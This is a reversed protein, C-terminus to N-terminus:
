DKDSVSINGLPEDNSDLDVHGYKNEMQVPGLEYGFIRLVDNVKDLRVSSKGNELQSIFKMSVGAYLALDEQKVGNEKRLDAIFKGLEKSM